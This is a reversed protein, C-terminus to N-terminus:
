SAPKRDVCCHYFGTARMSAEAAMLAAARSLLLKIHSRSQRAEGSTRMGCPLFFRDVQSRFAMRAHIRSPALFLQIVVTREIAISGTARDEFSPPTPIAATASGRPSVHERRLVGPWRDIRGQLPLRYKLYIL